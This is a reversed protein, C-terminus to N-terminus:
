QPPKPGQPGPGQPGPGQQGPGQPGPGQQGPQGGAAPPQGGMPPMPAAAEGSQTVPTGSFCGIVYPFGSTAHYGYTGDPGVRGNCADLQGAKKSARYTYAKWANSTPNGTKVYGSTVKVTKTCSKNTCGFSNYIPFGDIAYGLVRRKALNCESTTILTHDHYDSNYGTHGGCSDLLGNYVPDGFASDQPIPGEMPGYIPIGTVTFGLTGMLTEVSTSKAKKVPKLPVAWTYKQEKLGNPTKSVFTYGPMGNSSVVLSSSTCKVTVTPRAYDGGPGAVASLDPFMGTPCPNQAASVRPTTMVISTAVISVAVVALASIRVSLAVAPNKLVTM